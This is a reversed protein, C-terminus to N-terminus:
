AADRVACVITNYKDQLTTGDVEIFENVGVLALAQTKNLKLNALVAMGLEGLNKLNATSILETPAPADRLPGTAFGPDNRDAAVSQATAPKRPAEPPSAGLIIALADAETGEFDYMSYVRLERHADKSDLGAEGLKAWFRKRTDEDAMWHPGLNMAWRYFKCATQL